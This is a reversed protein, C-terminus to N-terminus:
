PQLRENGDPGVGKWRGELFKIQSFSSENFM